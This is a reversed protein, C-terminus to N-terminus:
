STLRAIVLEAVRKITLLSKYKGLIEKLRISKEIIKSFDDLLFIPNYNDANTADERNVIPFVKSCKLRGPV